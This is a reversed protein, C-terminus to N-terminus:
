IWTRTAMASPTRIPQAAGSVAFDKLHSPSAKTANIRM